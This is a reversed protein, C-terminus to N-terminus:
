PKAYMDAAMSQLMTYMCGIARFTNLGGSRYRCTEDANQHVLHVGVIDGSRARELIDELMEVVEMRVGLTQPVINGHLGVVKTSPEDQPLWEHPCITSHNVDDYVTSCAKCFEKM